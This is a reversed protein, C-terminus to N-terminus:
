SGGARGIRDLDLAQGANGLAPSSNRTKASSRSARLRASSRASLAAGARRLALLAVDREVVQERADALALELVEVEDDLGVDLARDLRELVRQVLHVLGLDRMLTMWEATPAIVSLSMMSASADSAMTMPKLTRGCGM